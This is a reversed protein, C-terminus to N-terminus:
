FAIVKLKESINLCLRFKFLLKYLSKASNIAKSNINAAIINFCFLSLLLVLGLFSILIRSHIELRHFLILEIFVLTMPIITYCVIFTYDCWFRNFKIIKNLIINQVNLLDMINEKILFIRENEARIKIQYEKFYIGFYVCICYYYLFSYATLRTGCFMFIVFLLASLLGFLLIENFTMKMILVSIIYIVTLIFYFFIFYECMIKMIKIKNIFIRILYRDNLGIDFFFKFGSLAQIIEFWEYSIGNNM